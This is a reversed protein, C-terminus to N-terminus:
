KIGRTNLFKGYNQDFSKIHVVLWNTIFGAVESGKLEKIKIESKFKIFNRILQNHAEQHGGLGPYDVSKMIKEENEFHVLAEEILDDLLDGIDALKKDTEAAVIAQNAIGILLQHDQDFEEVGVLYSDKWELHATMTKWKQHQDFLPPVQILHGLIKWTSGGWM